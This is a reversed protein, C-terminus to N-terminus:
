KLGVSSMVFSATAAYLLALGAFYAPGASAHQCLLFLRAHRSVEILVACAFVPAVPDNDTSDHDGQGRHNQGAEAPVDKLIV